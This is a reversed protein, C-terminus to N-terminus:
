IKRVLSKHSFYQSWLNPPGVRSILIKKGIPCKPNKPPWSLHTVRYTSLAVKQLRAINKQDLENAKAYIERCFKGMLLKENGHCMEKAPRYPEESKKVIKVLFSLFM